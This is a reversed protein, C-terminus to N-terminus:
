VNPDHSNLFQDGVLSFFFTSILIYLTICPNGARPFALVVFAFFIIRYNKVHRQYLWDAAPMHSSVRSEFRTIASMALTRSRTAHFRPWFPWM